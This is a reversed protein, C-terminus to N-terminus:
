KEENWFRKSQKYIMWLIAVLGVSCLLLVFQNETSLFKEDLYQGLRIASWMILAIQFALSSFILWRNPKERKKM